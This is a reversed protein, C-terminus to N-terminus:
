RGQDAALESNEHRDVPLPPEGALVFPSPWYREM